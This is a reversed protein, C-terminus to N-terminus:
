KATPVNLSAGRFFQEAASSLWEPVTIARGTLGHAVAIHAPGEWHSPIAADTEAFIETNEYLRRVDLETEEFLAAAIQLARSLEAARESAETLNRIAHETQGLIDGLLTGDQDRLAQPVENQCHRLRTIEADMEDSADRLVSAIWRM